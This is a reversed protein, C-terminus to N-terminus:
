PHRLQASVILMGDRLYYDPFFEGAKNRNKTINKIWLPLKMSTSYEVVSADFKDLWQKTRKAFREDQTRTITVMFQGGHPHTINIGSELVGPMPIQIFIKPIAGQEKDECKKYHIDSTEDASFCAKWVRKELLWKSPVHDDEGFDQGSLKRLRMTCGDSQPHILFNAKAPEYEVSVAGCGDGERAKAIEAFHPLQESFADQLLKSLSNEKTERPVAGDMADKLVKINKVNYEQGAESPDQESHEKAFGIYTVEM